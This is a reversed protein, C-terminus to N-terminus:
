IEQEHITKGTRDDRQEISLLKARTRQHRITKPAPPMRLLNPLFQMVVDCLRHLEIPLVDRGLLTLAKGLRFLGENTPKGTADAYVAASSLAIGYVGSEKGSLAPWIMMMPEGDVEDWELSVVYGKFEHTAHANAGGVAFMPKGAASVVISQELNM